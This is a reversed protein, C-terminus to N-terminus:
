ALGDAGSAAAVFCAFAVRGGDGYYCAVEAADRTAEEVGDTSAVGVEAGGEYCDAQACLFELDPLFDVADEGRVRAFDRGGAEEVCDGGGFGGLEGEVAGLDNVGEGHFLDDAGADGDADLVDCVGAVAASHDEGVGGGDVFCM